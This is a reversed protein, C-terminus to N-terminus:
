IEKEKSGREKHKRIKNPQWVTLSNILPSMPVRAPRVPSEGDDPRGTDPRASTDGLDVRGNFRTSYMGKLINAYEDFITMGLKTRILEVSVSPVKFYELNEKLEAENLSRAGAIFSRQHVVWGSRQM